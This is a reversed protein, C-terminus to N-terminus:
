SVVEKVAHGGMPHTRDQLKPRDREGFLAPQVVTVGLTDGSRVDHLILRDGGEGLSINLHFSALTEDPAGLLGRKM